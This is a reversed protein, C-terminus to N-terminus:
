SRVTRSNSGRTPSQAALESGPAQKSNQRGRERGRGAQARGRDREFIFMLFFLLFMTEQHETSDEHILINMWDTQIFLKYAFCYDKTKLYALSSRM